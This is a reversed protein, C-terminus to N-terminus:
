TKGAAALVALATMVENVLKTTEELETELAAVTESYDELRKQVGPTEVVDVTQNNADADHEVMVNRLSERHIIQTSLRRAVVAKEHKVKLQEKLEEQKAMISKLYGKLQTIQDEQVEGGSDDGASTAEAAETTTTSAMTAATECHHTNTFESSQITHKRSHQKLAEENRTEREEREIIRDIGTIRNAVELLLM